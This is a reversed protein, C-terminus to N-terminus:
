GEFWSFRFVLLCVTCCKSVVEGDDAAAALVTEGSCDDDDLDAILVDSLFQTISIISRNLCSLKKYLMYHATTYSFKILKVTKFWTKQQQRYEIEFNKLMLSKLSINDM